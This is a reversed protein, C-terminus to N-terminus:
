QGDLEFAGNIIRQYRVKPSEQEGGRQSTTVRVASPQAILLKALSAM